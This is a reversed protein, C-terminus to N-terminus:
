SKIYEFNVKYSCASIFKNVHEHKLVGYARIHDM